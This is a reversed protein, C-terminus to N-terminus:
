PGRDGPRPLRRLRRLQRRLRLGGTRRGPGPRHAPAAGRSRSRRPRREPEARDPRDQREPRGPPPGAQRAGTRRGGRFDRSPRSRHGAYGHHRRDPHHRRLATLGRAGPQGSAGVLARRRHRPFRTCRTTRPPWTSGGQQCWRSVTSTVMSPRSTWARRSTDVATVSSAVGTGAPDHHYVTWSGSPGTAPAAASAAGSGAASGVTAAGATAAGVAASGVVSAAAHCPWRRPGAHGPGARVRGRPGPWRPGPWARVPDARVPDDPGRGAAQRGRQRWRM